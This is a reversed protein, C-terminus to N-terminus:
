VKATPRKPRDEVTVPPVTMGKRECWGRCWASLDDQKRKMALGYVFSKFPVARPEFGDAVDSLHAKWRRVVRRRMRDRARRKNPTSVVKPLMHVAIGDPKPSYVAYNTVVVVTENDPTM